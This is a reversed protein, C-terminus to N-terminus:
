KKAIAGLGAESMGNYELAVEAIAQLGKYPRTLIFDVDDDKFIRNGSEDGAVISVFIAAQRIDSLGSDSMSTIEDLEHGSLNRVYVEADEGWEPVSVRRVSNARSEMYERTALAM